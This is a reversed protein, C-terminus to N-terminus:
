YVPLATQPHASYLDFIMFAEDTQSVPRREKIYTGDGVQVIQLPYVTIVTFTSQSRGTYSVTRERTYCYVKNKQSSTADEETGTLLIRLYEYLPRSITTTHTIDIFLSHVRPDIHQIDPTVVANKPEHLAVGQYHTLQTTENAVIFRHSETAGILRLRDPLTHRSVSPSVSAHATM